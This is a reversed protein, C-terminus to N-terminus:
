ANSQLNRRIIYSLRGFLLTSSCPRAKERRSQVYLAINGQIERNYAAREGKTARKTQGYAIAGFHVYVFVCIKNVLNTFNTFNTICCLHPPDEFM